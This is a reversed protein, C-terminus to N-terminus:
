GQRWSLTQANRLVPDVSPRPGLGWMLSGKFDRQKGDGRAKSLAILKHAQTFVEQETGGAAEGTNREGPEWNDGNLIQLLSSLAWSVRVVEDVMKM